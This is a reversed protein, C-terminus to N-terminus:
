RSEKVRVRAWLSAFGAYASAWGDPTASREIAASLLARETCTLDLISELYREALIAAALGVEASPEHELADLADILTDREDVNGINKVADIFDSM